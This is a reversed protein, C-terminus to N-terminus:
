TTTEQDLLKELLVILLNQSRFPQLPQFYRSLDSALRELLKTETCSASQDRAEQELLTKKDDNRLSATMHKEVIQM